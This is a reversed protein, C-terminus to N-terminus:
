SLASSAPEKQLGAFAVYRIFVWTSLPIGALPIFFFQWSDSFRFGSVLRLTHIIEYGEILTFFIIAPVWPRRLRYGALNMLLLFLAAAVADPWKTINRVWTGTLTVAVLPVYWGIISALLLGFAVRLGVPWKLIFGSVSVDTHNNM